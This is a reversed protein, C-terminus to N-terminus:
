GRMRVGGLRRMDGAFYASSVLTLGTSLVLFAKEGLTLSVLEASATIAGMAQRGARSGSCADMAQWGDRSGSCADMAM